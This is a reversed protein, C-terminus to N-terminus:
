GLKRLCAAASSVDFQLPAELEISRVVGDEIIMVGRDARVGMGFPTLDLEIGLARTLKASGDALMVIKGLAGHQQAWAHLVEVDNVALCAVLDVGKAHLAPLDDLYSPLHKQTCDSTFAGIVSFVVAKKGALLEAVDVDAAGEPTAQKITVSPIKQGVQIV